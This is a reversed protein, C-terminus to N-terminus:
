DEILYAIQETPKNLGINRKQVKEKQTSQPAFNLQCDRPSSLYGREEM